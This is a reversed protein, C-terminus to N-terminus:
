IFMFSNHIHKLLCCLIACFHGVNHKFKKIKFYFIFLNYFFIPLDMWFKCPAKFFCYFSLTFNCTLFCSFLSTNSSSCIILYFILLMPLFLLSRSFIIIYLSKKCAIKVYVFALYQFNFVFYSKKFTSCL